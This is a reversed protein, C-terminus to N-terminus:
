DIDAAHMKRGKFNEGFNLDPFVKKFFNFQMPDISLVGKGPFELNSGISINPEEINLINFLKSLLEVYYCESMHNHSLALIKNKFEKEIFDCMNVVNEYRKSNEEYRHRNEKRYAQFDLSFPYENKLIKVLEPDDSEQLYNIINEESNVKTKVYEVFPKLSVKDLLYVALRTDPVCIKQKLAISDHLHETKLEDMLWRGGDHRQFVFVDSERIKSHVCDIYDKQKERNETSWVAFLGPENWFTNLGCDTCLQVDFKDALNLRFFRAVAGVQCNGYFLIKQKM